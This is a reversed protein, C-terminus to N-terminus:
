EHTHPNEGGRDFWEKIAEEAYRAGYSASHVKGEAVRKVDEGGRWAWGGGSQIYWRWGPQDGDGM